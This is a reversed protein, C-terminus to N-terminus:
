RRKPLHTGPTQGTIRQFAAIFASPKRYGVARTTAGIFAGKTLMPIAARIRVHTRWRAFSLGTEVRFDSCLSAQHAAPKRTPRSTQPHPLRHAGVAQVPPDEVEACRAACRGLDLFHTDSDSQPARSTPHNM